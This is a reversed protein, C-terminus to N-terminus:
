GGIIDSPRKKIAKAFSLITSLQPDYKVELNLLRSVFQKASKASFGMAEGIEQQTMGSQEAFRRLQKRISNVTQKAM